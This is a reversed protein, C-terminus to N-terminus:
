DFINKSPGSLRVIKEYIACNVINMTTVVTKQTTYNSYSTLLIKLKYAAVM